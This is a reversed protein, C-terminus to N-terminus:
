EQEEEYDWSYVVQEDYGFDDENIVIPTENFYASMLLREFSDLYGFKVRETMNKSYKRDEYVWAITYENTSEHKQIMEIEYTRSDNEGFDENLSVLVKVWNSYTRGDKEVNIYASTEDEYKKQKMEKVYINFLESITIKKDGSPLYLDNFYKIVDETIVKEASDEVAKKLNKIVLNAYGTFSIQNVASSVENKIKEEFKRKIEWDNISSSIMGKVQNEVQKEIEKKFVEDKIMNDIKNTVIGTVDLM